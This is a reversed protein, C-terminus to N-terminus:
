SSIRMRLLLDQFRQDSHLSDFHPEIGLYQLQSDHENFGQELAAFAKEREGLGVYLIALEIPSVYEKGTELKNRIAKAEDMRGIKALAFGLYCEVGTHDGALRIMEQYDSVAEDYQGKASNVFGLGYYTSGSNPNLELGIKYQELASEYNRAFYYIFALNDNALPRLPDLERALKIEALAQDHKKMISLFLAYRFHATALNPNLEIARKYQNEAGSWDWEAMKIGALALCVEPLNPNLQSSKEAASKANTMMEKPQQFGNAAIYYYVSALAAYGEAYNPDAALSQNYYEIAKKSSEFSSKSQYFRGKLLLEYAQPNPKTKQVLIGNQHLQLREAIQQSIEKEIDSIENTQRNFQRSWIQSNNKVDFLEANIKLDDGIQSVQGQLIYRVGLNEGVKELDIEKEKYQFTSSKAIVKVEKLQTLSNILSESFGDSLYELNPDGSTNSFPMVAISAPTPFNTSFYFYGFLSFALLITALLGAAFSRNKEIKKFVFEASSIQNSQFELHEATKLRVSNSIRTENGNTNGKSISSSANEINQSQFASDKQCNKIDQWLEDANQYREDVDKQLAKVLIHKLEGSINDANIKPEKHLILDITESSNKGKFPQKGALMEFLVVGLSWIDSRIDIPELRAQEPSMYAVTGMLLSPNTLLPTQTNPHQPTSILIGEDKGKNGVGKSGKETLKALGFDLVKVLGDERVMINEPKIDRHIIGAFHGAKLATTAQLTIELIQNLSLLGENILKRLTKGEIFEAAIFNQNKSKGIEYITLINPHNLSSATKAEQQFRRLNDKETVFDNKIFKIAVNRELKTDLALFVEGMGGMGILSIIKYQKIKTGILSSNATEAVMEAAVDLPPQDLLSSTVEAFSLLKEVESRLELDYGCINSLFEPRLNSDIELAAHYIEEIKALRKVDM